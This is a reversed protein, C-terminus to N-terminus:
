RGFLSGITGLIDGTKGQGGTLSGLIGELDFSKDNPDNTKNVLKSMVTPLLKNVINSATGKDLGFKAMLDGAVGSSLSSMAPHSAVNSGNQLLDKVSNLGGSKILGQLGSFISNAATECAADNHQDPIAPNNIIADGANEKVLKLLNELM